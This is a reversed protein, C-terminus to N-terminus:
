ATAFLCAVFRCAERSAAMVAELSQRRLVGGEAEDAELDLQEATQALHALTHAGVAMASGKISHAAHKWDRSTAAARLQELYLPMQGAFLELIERELVESGRTFRALYVRDIPESGSHPESRISSDM